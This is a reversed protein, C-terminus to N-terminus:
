EYTSGLESLLPCQSTSCIDATATIAIVFWPGSSYRRYFTRTAESFSCSRLQRVRGFEMLRGLAFETFAVSCGCGFLTVLPVTGVTLVSRGCVCICCSNMRKVFSGM